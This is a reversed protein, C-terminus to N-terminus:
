YGYKERREQRELTDKIDRVDQRLKDDEYKQMINIPQDPATYQQQNQANKLERTHEKIAEAKEEIAEIQRKKNIYERHSRFQEISSYQKLPAWEITNDSHLRKLEVTRTIRDFRVEWGDVYENDYRFLFLAVIIIIISISIIEITTFKM